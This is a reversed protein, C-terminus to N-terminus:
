RSRYHKKSNTKEEKKERSQEQVQKFTSLDNQRLSMKKLEQQATNPTKEEKKEETKEETKLGNKLVDKIDLNNGQNRTQMAQKVIPHEKLEELEEEKSKIYPKTTPQPPQPPVYKEKIEELRQSFPKKEEEKQERSKFNTQKKYEKLPLYKIGKQQPEIEIELEKLNKRVISNFQNQMDSLFNRNDNKPDLEKLINTLSKKSNIKNIDHIHLSEQDLHMIRNIPKLQKFIQNQERLEDVSKIFAKQVREDNKLHNSNTLSLEFEVYRINIPRGRRDQQKPLKAKETKCDDIKSKIKEIQKLNPKKRSEYEILRKEYTNIKANLTAIQGKLDKEVELMRQTTKPKQIPETYHFKHFNNKHLIVFNPNKIHNDKRENHKTKNSASKGTHSKMQIATNAM